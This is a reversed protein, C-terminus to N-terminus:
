YGLVEDVLVVTLDSGWAPRDLLSYVCCPSNGMECKECSGLSQCPTQRGFRAMNKPAAIMRQRAKAEKINAVIKNKGAVVFTRKPGFSLAAVRNGKGDVNFIQGQTTIANASSFYVDCVLAQRQIQLKEEPSLDEQWHDLVTLGKEQLLQPLGLERLTVSGGLGAVEEKQVQNQLFSIAEAKNQCVKVKFGKKQLGKAAAELSNIEITM